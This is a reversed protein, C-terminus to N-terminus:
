TKEQDSNPARRIAREQDAVETFSFGFAARVWEDPVFGCPDPCDDLLFIAERAVRELAQIRRAAAIREDLTPNDRVV